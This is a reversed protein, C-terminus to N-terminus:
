SRRRRAAWRAPSRRSRSGNRKLTASNTSRRSSLRVSSVALSVACM